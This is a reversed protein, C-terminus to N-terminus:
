RTWPYGYFEADALRDPLERQLAWDWFPQMLSALEAPLDRHELEVDVVGKGARRLSISVTTPEPPLLWSEVIDTGRVMEIIDNEQGTAMDISKAIFRPVDAAVERLTTWSYTFAVRDPRKDVVIAGQADLYPEDMLTTHFDAPYSNGGMAIWMWPASIFKWVQRPTGAVSARAHVVVREGSLAPPSAANVMEVLQKIAAAAALEVADLPPAPVVDEGSIIRGYADMPTLLGPPTPETVPWFLLLHQERSSKQEEAQQRDRIHVRMRYRGPGSSALEGVQRYDSGNMDLVGISGDPCDLDTEGIVDWGDEPEGPAATLAQATVPIKGMYLGTLVAVAQRGLDLFLGPISEEGVNMEPGAMVHYQSHDVWVRVPRGSGIQM